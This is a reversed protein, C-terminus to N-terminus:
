GHAASRETNAGSGGMQYVQKLVTVVAMYFKPPISEGVDVEAYLTRALPKNEVIPVESESALRRIRFAMEDQGKAIVVPASMSLRDYELAVAFHTPNTVIVDAKPVTQTINRTMMEQMRQKLRGRVQPDGENTKREEKIEQVSMKLGEIHQKRQFRYDILSLFLMVITTQLLIRLAIGSVLAVGHMHTGHILNVLEGVSGYINVFAITGVILVKGLAKFLNYGAEAGAFSKKLWKGVNPAIRQFDPSIPKTSFLFGVQLINGAAAAIFSIGAIPAFMRIYFQFFGISGLGTETVDLEGARTFYYRMMALFQEFLYSSLFWLTMIALLLIVAGTVDPSKAVKGDERAKQLKRETPEETRGEDEAAFWQLHMHQLQDLLLAQTSELQHHNSNPSNM